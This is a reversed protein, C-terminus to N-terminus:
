ASFTNGAKSGDGIREWEYSSRADEKRWQNQGTARQSGKRRQTKTDL